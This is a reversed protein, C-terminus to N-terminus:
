RRMSSEQDIVMEGHKEEKKELPHSKVSPRLSKKYPAVPQFFEGVTELLLNKELAVGAV